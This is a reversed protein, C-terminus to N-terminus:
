RSEFASFATPADRPKLGNQLNYHIAKTIWYRWQPEARLKNEFWRPQKGRMRLDALKFPGNSQQPENQLALVIGKGVYGLVQFAPARLQALRAFLARADDLRDHELYYMGLDMGLQFGKQVEPFNGPLTDLSSELLTRLAQEKTELKNATHEESAPVVEAHSPFALRHHFWAITTGITGALLVSSAFVAGRWGWYRLSFGPLTAQMINASLAGATAQTPTAPVVEVSPSLAATQGSLRERLRAVDQLLERGTQYRRAPDKAMMKHIIACLFAPLDPRVESLSKPEDRVHQLAVEFPSDGQFPPHGALMHYCAVGFSYIDTRCDLPKAEVQEPSMYLPTGM